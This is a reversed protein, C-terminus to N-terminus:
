ISGNRPHDQKGLRPGCSLVGGCGQILRMTLKWEEGRCQMVRLELPLTEFGLAQWDAPGARIVMVEPSSRQNM